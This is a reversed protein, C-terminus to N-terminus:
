NTGDAGEKLIARRFWLNANDKDGSLLYDIAHDLQAELAIEAPTEPKRPIPKAGGNLFNVREAAAERNGFDSDARFRGTPDYFGVTLLGPETAIYVWPGSM